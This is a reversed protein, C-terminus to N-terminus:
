VAAQDQDVAVLDLEAGPPVAGVHEDAGGQVVGGLREGLELLDHVAAILPQQGGSAALDGAVVALVHVQDDDVFVGVVGGGDALFFSRSSNAARARSRIARPRAAPTM